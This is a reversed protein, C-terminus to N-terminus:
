FLLVGGIRPFVGMKNTIMHTENEFFFKVIILENVDPLQLFIIPHALVLVRHSAQRVQKM